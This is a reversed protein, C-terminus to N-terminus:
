AAARAHIVSLVGILQDVQSSDFVGDPGQPNIDIFPSEYLLDPKMAGHETLHDVILNVFEIQNATLSKGETLQGLAQKAVERSLGV